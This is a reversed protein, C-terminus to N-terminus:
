LTYINAYTLTGNQESAKPSLNEWFRKLTKPTPEDSSNELYKTLSSRNKQTGVFALIHILTYIRNYLLAFFQIVLLLAFTVLFMFGLPEVYLPDKYSVTGNLYVRPIQVSLPTGIVQLFFTAVIWLANMLFFFFSVKNRLSQLDKKVKEQQTKDEAIPELYKSILGVWFCSEDDDMIDEQLQVYSSKEKMQNVWHKSISVNEYASPTDCTRAAELAESTRAAELSKCESLPQPHPNLIVVKRNDTIQIRCDCCFFHCQKNFCEHLNTTEEQQQRQKPTASERTGWSVINMNVISYITLLLYGSPSAIFYIFAYSLLYFEQPHLLGSFLYLTSMSLLFMGSPTIFTKEAIMQGIVSCITATMLFAYLASLFAAIFIQTDPKLKYCVIIYLVPPIVSIVISVDGRWGFVFSFSGAIMLTMAAPILVASATIMILYLIYPRSISPNVKATSQGNQLIDLTNALTSPVWRRRQNYFEKFEEPANTYAESAANYEVRWGQQLLLTCLWRDEGQDYQVYHQAETAKRTYTKIVNDDMLAAARFLSFCGPSCLVSGLVHEATKQLWHGVAYEFKQYWVIPGTGTPHIRGCAAGVHPYMRLRDVLLMLASPQFDTDGDLALIYTNMREKELKETIKEKSETQQDMEIAHKRYLKWGLLYYLYMIQSWRKKHRIQQKDKLHVILSNGHPLTYSLRGGYPSDMIKQATSKLKPDSLLQSREEATFVSYVENMAVVLDEVYENVQSQKKGTLEDITEIFADDFYIHAQFDFEEKRGKKNQHYRDLRFISTLIKIMEDLTEHWMTACLYITVHEKKADSCSHQMRTNLLMSENIFAAEFMRRVFLQSTRQIRDIKMKWVYATSLIFGMWWSVVAVTLLAISTAQQDQWEIATKNCISQIIGSFIIEMQQSSTLSPLTSNCVDALTITLNAAFSIDQAAKYNLGFVILFSVLVVPSTFLMPLIFSSRITHMKCAIVGFWHCLASTGVQIAFLSLALKVDEIDTTTIDNWKMNALPVYGGVVAAIVVIRTISTCINTINRSHMLQKRISQITESKSLSTFNEWWNLSSLVIAGAALGIYLNKDSFDKGHSLSNVVGFCVFGLIVFVLSLLPRVIVASLSRIQFALQLVSPLFCVSSLIFTNTIIDFYPMTAITLLATGFAILGEIVCVM